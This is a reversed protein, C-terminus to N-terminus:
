QNLVIEQFTQVYHLRGNEDVIIWSDGTAVSIHEVVGQFSDYQNLYVIVKDGKEILTKM